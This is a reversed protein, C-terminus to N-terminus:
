SAVIRLLRQRQAVTLHGKNAIAPLYDAPGLWQIRNTAKTSDAVM